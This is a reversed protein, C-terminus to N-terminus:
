KECKIGGDKLTIETLVNFSRIETSAAVVWGSGPDVSHFVFCAAWDIWPDSIQHWWFGCINPLCCILSHLWRLIIMRDDSECDMWTIECNYLQYVLSGYIEMSREQLRRDVSAYPSEKRQLWADMTTTIGYYIYFYTLMQRPDNHIMTDTSHYFTM